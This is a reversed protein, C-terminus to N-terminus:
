TKDDTIREIIMVIGDRIARVTLPLDKKASLHALYRVRAKQDNKDYMQYTVTHQVCHKAYELASKWIKTTYDPLRKRSGYVIVRYKVTV